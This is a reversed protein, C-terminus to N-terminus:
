NGGSWLFQPESYLTNYVPDGRGARCVYGGTHSPGAPILTYSDETTGSGSLAEVSYSRDSLSLLGATYPVTQYWFFRWGTSSEEVGCRLTVSDGPNLWQPSVSLVAQPKDTVTLRVADSWESHKKQDIHTGLCRYDGNDSIKVVSIEYQNERSLFEVYEKHWTYKWDTVEGRQINCRLT